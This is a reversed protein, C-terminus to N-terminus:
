GVDLELSHEEIARVFKFLVCAKIRLMYHQSKRCTGGGGGGWKMM